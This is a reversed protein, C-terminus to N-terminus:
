EILLKPPAIIEQIDDWWRTSVRLAIPFGNQQGLKGNSSRIWQIVAKEVSIRAFRASVPARQMKGTKNCSLSTTVVYNQM